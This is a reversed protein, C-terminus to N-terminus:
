LYHCIIFFFNNFFFIINLDYDKKREKSLKRLRQYMCDFASERSKCGKRKHDRLTFMRTYSIMRSIPERMVLVIKLWPFHEHLMEAMPRGKWAYDVSADVTVLELGSATAM